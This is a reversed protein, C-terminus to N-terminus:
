FGSWHQSHRGKKAPPGYNQWPLGGGPYIWPPMGNGAAQTRQQRRATKREKKTMRPKLRPATATFPSFAKPFNMAPPARSAPSNGASMGLVENGVEFANSVVARQRPRNGWIIGQVAETLHNSGWRQIKSPKAPGILAAHAITARPTDLSGTKKEEAAPREPGIEHDYMIQGCPNERAKREQIEKVQEESMHVKAM